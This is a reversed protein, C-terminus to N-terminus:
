DFYPFKSRQKFETIKEPTHRKISNLVIEDFIDNMANIYTAFFNPHFMSNKSAESAAWEPLQESLEKVSNELRDILYGQLVPSLNKIGDFLIQTSTKSKAMIKKHNILKEKITHINQTKPQPKPAMNVRELRKYLGEYSSLTYIFSSLTFFM